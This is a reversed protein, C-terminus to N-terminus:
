LRGHRSGYWTEGGHITSPPRALSQVTASRLLADIQGTSDPDHKAEVATVGIRVTPVSSDNPQLLPDRVFLHRLKRAVCRAGQATTEPLVVIFEDRSTRALWDVKRICNFTREVFARLLEDGAELGSSDSFRELGDISCTLVALAHGYRQSRALERPLHQVLYRLNHVGTAPDTHTLALHQNVSDTNEERM